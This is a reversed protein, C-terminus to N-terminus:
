KAEKMYDDFRNEILHLLKHVMSKSYGIMEGIQEINYGQERLDIIRKESNSFTIRDFIDRIDVEELSTDDVKPIHYAVGISQLRISQGSDDTKYPEGEIMSIRHFLKAEKFKANWHRITRPPATVLRDRKMYDNIAHTIYTNIYPGINNDKLGGRSAMWVAKTVAFEMEGVLETLDEYNQKQIIRLGMRLHGEIIEKSVSRDGKRLRYVLEELRDPPIREPLNKYTEVVDIWRLKRRSM